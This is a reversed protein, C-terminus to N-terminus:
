GPGFKQNISATIEEATYLKGEPNKCGPCFRATKKWSSPIDCNVSWFPWTRCQLPRDEYCRCGKTEPNWLVCDGNPFEKLSKFRGFELRVFAEEFQVRSLKMAKALAKIEEETVWVYGEEGTCCAGCQRCKFRLGEEYWPKNEKNEEM